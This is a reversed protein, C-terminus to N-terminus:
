RPNIIRRGETVQPASTPPSVLRGTIASRVLIPLLVVLLQWGFALHFLLWGGSNVLWAWRGFTQEQRALLVGRWLIEEGMINLVWFPLWIALLWTREPTLPEFHM